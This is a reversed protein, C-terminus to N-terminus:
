HSRRQDYPKAEDTSISCIREWYALGWTATDIFFQNLVDRVDNNVQEYEASEKDIIYGTIGLKEYYTPLYDQISQKIDRLQNTGIIIM